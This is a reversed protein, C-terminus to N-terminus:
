LSDKHALFKNYFYNELLIPTKYIIASKTDFINKLGPIINQKQEENALNVKTTKNFVKSIDDKDIDLIQISNSSKKLTLFDEWLWVHYFHTHHDTIFLEPFKTLTYSIYTIVTSPENWDFPMNGNYTKLYNDKLIYNITPKSFLV